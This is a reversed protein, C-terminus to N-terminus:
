YAKEPRTQSLVFNDNIFIGKQGIGLYVATDKPGQKLIALLREPCVIIQTEINGFVTAGLDPSNYKPVFKINEYKATQLNGQLNIQVFKSRADKGWALNVKELESTLQTKNPWSLVINDQNPWTEMFMGKELFILEFQENELKVFTYGLERARSATYSGLIGAASKPLRMQPNNSPFRVASHNDTGYMHTGSFYVRNNIDKYCEKLAFAACVALNNDFEAEGV